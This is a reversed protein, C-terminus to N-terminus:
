LLQENQKYNDMACILYNINTFVFKNTFLNKSAHLHTHYFEVSKKLKLLKSM